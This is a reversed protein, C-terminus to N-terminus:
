HKGCMCGVENTETGDHWSFSTANKSTEWYFKGRTREYNGMENMTAADYLRGNVMTYRISETNRINELPNKDMVVLDALKGTELSGIWKDLGLSLAANSTATQLAQHNTMGGQQMMWIEWHGGIGQIQGHAGMNVKVGEDVLKKLSNSTLLHGNQYEEEPLMTRHRSRTDIVSRPTFRLLKENEWVNTQQYWYYEGSVGAYNVILTPTYATQAKKWLQIVDNFLPAVPLNHEITTHGDLIMTLNTFFTSGGEPVVEMNLERAAQIIMQRQERRPQNYSKVSFAGFAKTRRLASRADDISNVVAKFDGDAGYLITGTSFVRPGTMLGAKILESQAFVLESNASPDHMTTIGYALNAYYAWHKQPLIGSRFHDGHAHADIFGPVITKGSCNIVKAGAPVSVTRGISKILNGEVVVTGNEIVENGKMTIIRANTFAIVGQPKDVPMDLGVDIGNEPVKFLSDPKNAIFDFREDLNITYYQSGLTYHLQKNDASWQLNIGADKSVIKLPYDKIGSGIDLTKGTKPFAAIYVEFLDVFAIWNEDPSIVFQSGYTSKLHLREDTGDLKSSAYNRNMGGGVQYYIRDGAKSFRPLDGRDTVFKEDSGDTNMIYVGPKATFAPGLNNSGGEKRFVILKGDPSYSPMRYISKGRSIKMPRSGDSLNVKYVAGGTEDNWTIYLLTKGDASFAPEFEFGARKYTDDGSTLRVPKGSPLEKKWLYGVANFVMWKGDPSTIASRIVNVNFTSPNIEQQFRVADYIRQKVTCTFPIESAKNVASVDISRLKGKAWIVIHKDDPTWSYGTYLGFVSWAEQQDKSLDDYVPWEEATELNRIFLITQTRVRKIFSLFKGDHSLQPRIAGGPGGTINEVTGKERDFRRIAFIQDNPDKNYQFSGGPYMDESFYVYRGDPSVCPENVDQQDNKRTTLQLGSGGSIHFLWIEGAGLSRTSTFHKKAVIYQGDPTWAANNLLRFSEKTIQKPQSGDRNMMWINDGGGADSTFLIKSGDPSFRPQVEFAHGGRIVKAEGGASPMLYIDGLLDFVIEKGDPSIDLNMWTGENTSFSVEKYPGEPNSVDWKKKEQSRVTLSFLICVPILLQRSLM